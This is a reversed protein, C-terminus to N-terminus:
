ETEFINAKLEERPLLPSLDHLPRGFELKPLIKEDSKLKVDCLVPGKYNLVETITNNLKQHNNLEFTKIDYASAIAQFDPFGLSSDPDAAIHRSELWTDQTQKIIGYGKNNILFIKIPLKNYVITELEQINMQMGGDGIICVIRKKPAAYQAGISAPLAYGMPSHNFASFLSQPSRIKYTQMTWTLTAGADTIIIDGPSTLASLENMFVYPNVKEKQEYYEKLCVPYNKRWLSIQKIWSSLDNTQIPITNIFELFNKVNCNVKLDINMGNNKNLESKDIDVVIKKAYPAFKAPNSGTQHTDLKSGLSILLDCNQVAFNGARNASVGFNGVLGPTDDVFLDITSWTTAFPVGTKQLFTQALDKAKALKVGGGIIVIPRAAKKIYKVTQRIEKDIVIEKKVPPVFAELKDPNIDARQIDDPLDMLVPGPRGEFSMYILKELEYRIKTADTILVAYKTLNEVIQVVNMEQFGMQRVKRDAKLHHVPPAGSIYLNPISDFYACAIGQMLNITGPGSTAVAVGIKGSVRYYAEAAIAAGQENETPVLTIKPQKELSDLIHVVCGGNGVFVHETQESLFKAVYDSLKM